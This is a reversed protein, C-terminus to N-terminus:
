LACGGGGGGKHQCRSFCLVDCLQGDHLLHVGGATLALNSRLSLHHSGGLTDNPLLVHLAVCRAENLGVERHAMNECMNELWM